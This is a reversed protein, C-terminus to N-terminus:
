QLFICIILYKGYENIRNSGSSWIAISCSVRNSGVMLYGKDDYDIICYYPIGWTDLIEGNVMSVIDYDIFWLNKPNAVVDLQNSSACLYSVLSTIAGDPLHNSKGPYYGYCLNYSVISSYINGMNTLERGRRSQVGRTCSTVLLIIVFLVHLCRM